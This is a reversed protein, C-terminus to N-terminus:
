ENKLAKFYLENSLEECYEELKNYDNNNIIIKEKIYNSNYKLYFDRFYKLQPLYERWTRKINRNEIRDNAENEDVDIIILKDICKINTCVGFTNNTNENFAYNFTAIDTLVGRICIVVGGLSNIYKESEIRNETLYKIIKEKSYKINLNEIFSKSKLGYKFKSYPQGIISVPSNETYRFREKIKVVLLNAFTDKGSGDIGEILIFMNPLTEKKFNKNIILYNDSAFKNLSYITKYDLYNDSIYDLNNYDKDGFLVCSAFIDAYKGGYNGSLYKYFLSYNYKPIYLINNEEAFLNSDLLSSFYKNITEKIVGTNSSKIIIDHYRSINNIRKYFYFEKTRFSSLYSDGNIYSVSNHGVGIINGIYGYEVKSYNSEEINEKLFIFKSKGLSKYGDMNYSLKYLSDYINILRKLGRGKTNPYFVISDPCLKLVNFIDEELIFEDFILDINIINNINNKKINDMIDKIIYFNYKKRNYKKLLSKDFSQVGISYRNFFKNNTYDFNCITPYLEMSIEEAIIDYHNFINEIINIQENNLLSPTGGGFYISKLNNNRINKLIYELQNILTYFYNNEIKTASFELNDTYHCFYCKKNCFPINIYIADTFFNSEFM